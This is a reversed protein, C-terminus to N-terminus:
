VRQMADYTMAYHNREDGHFLMVTANTFEYTERLNDERKLTLKQYKGVVYGFDINDIKFDVLTWGTSIPHKKGDTEVHESICFSPRTMDKVIFTKM